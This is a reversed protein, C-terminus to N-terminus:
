PRPEPARWDPHPCDWRHTGSRQYCWPCEGIFPLPKDEPWWTLGRAHLADRYALAQEYTDFCPGAMHVHWGNKQWCTSLDRTDRAAGNVDAVSM